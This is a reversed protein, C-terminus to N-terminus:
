SQNSIDRLIKTKVAAAPAEPENYTPFQLNIKKLGPGTGTGSLKKKETGTGTGIGALNKEPGPGPGPRKNFTYLIAIVNFFVTYNTM